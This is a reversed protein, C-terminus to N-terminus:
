IMGIIYSNTNFVTFNGEKVVKEFFFSVNNDGIFDYIDNYHTQHFYLISIQALIKRVGLIVYDIVFNAAMSISVYM